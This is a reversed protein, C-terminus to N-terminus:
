KKLLLLVLLIFLSLIAGWYYYRHTDSEKTNIVKIPVNHEIITDREKCEGVHHITNTVSDYHYEVRMDQNDIVTITEHKVFEHSKFYVHKPISITDYHIVTSDKIINPNLFLARDLHREARRERVKKSPICSVVLLSLLLIYYTKM